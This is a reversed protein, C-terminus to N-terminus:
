RFFGMQFQFNIVQDFQAQGRELILQLENFIQRQQEEFRELHRNQAAIRTDLRSIKQDLGDELTKIIGSSKTYTEAMEKMAAISSNENTFLNSVEGSRQELMEDLLDSDDVFMTGDKKFGIGIESLRALEGEEAGEMPLLATQRLNITLNRVSRMNQLAGRRDNEADIFSRDRITKNLDNFSNIFSNINERAKDLDRQVSLQEQEGTDKLLTFSLGSIADDITNHGREFNVGDITFLANLNEHPVLHSMNDTVQALVGSSDSFQIRNEFGTEFSQLSFQVEENNVQFVSARAEEGFFNSIEEAFSELIERNTKDVPNGEDDEKTTEVTITETKEGITITVSGNGEAALEFGDGNMVQALAVDNSAIRNVTINYNSPNKIGSASNIRVVSENSSSTSMPQLANNLPNEFETIKSVFKSISSSVEGLATKRERHTQQQAQFLLKQRSEIQVLQQVFKEYPNNQRFIDQISNM